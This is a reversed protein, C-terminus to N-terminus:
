HGVLLDHLRIHCQLGHPLAVRAGHVGAPVDRHRVVRGPEGPLVPGPFV